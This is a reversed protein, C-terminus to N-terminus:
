GVFTKILKVIPETFLIMLIAYLGLILVVEINSIRPFQRRILMLVICGVIFAILPILPFGDM